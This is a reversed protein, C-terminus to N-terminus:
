GFRVVVISAFMGAGFGALVVINGKKIEGKKVAANLAKPISASSFNGEQYDEYVVGDAYGDMKGRIIAQTMPKSGQHPLVRVIDSPALNAKQVAENILSWINASVTSLVEKGDQEFKHSEPYPVPENIYPLVMLRPDVPMKIFGSVGEPFRQNVASLIEMDKGFEFFVAYAGDSFLTQALSLDSNRGETKLDHLFPSYKETTVLLIRKGNFRQENEKLYALSRTFGSCAAHVDLHSEPTLLLRKSIRQSINFGQPFSTSVIVVDAKKGNLAQQAASLGMALPTETPDAVYRQEVGTASLIARASLPESDSNKRLNWSAIDVNTVRRTPLYIGFVVSPKKPTEPSSISESRQPFEAVSM